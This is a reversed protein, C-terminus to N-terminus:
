EANAADTREDRGRESRAPRASLIEVYLATPISAGRATSGPKL